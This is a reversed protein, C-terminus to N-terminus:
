AVPEGFSEEEDRGFSPVADERLRRLSRWISSKM